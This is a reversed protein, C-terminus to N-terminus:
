KLTLPPDPLCECQNLSRNIYKNLRSCPKLIQSKNKQATCQSRVASFTKEIKDKDKDKGDGDFDAVVM